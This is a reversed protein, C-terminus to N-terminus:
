LGTFLILLRRDCFLDEGLKAPGMAHPLLPPLAIFEQRGDSDIGFRALFAKRAAVKEETLQHERWARLGLMGAVVLGAVFVAGAWFGMSQRTM